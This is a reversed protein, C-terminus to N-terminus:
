YDDEFPEPFYRLPMTAHIMPKEKVPRKKEPEDNLVRQLDSREELLVTNATKDLNNLTNDITNNM